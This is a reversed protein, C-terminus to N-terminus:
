KKEPAKERLAFWARMQYSCRCKSSGDPALVLGGAPIANIFCGPRMGGFNETGADRSLDLYGLTGSRFLMLNKGASIQGCGYSRELAFPKTSGDLLDWAGGQAYLTRNNILPRSEYEAERDWLRKGTRSDFAALRGGVETPLRFFKHRMGQYSMLLAHHQTSLALQTGWIHETSQWKVNGTQANLAVLTGTAHDGPKLKERHRGDRRPNDIRDVLSLKRDILYVTDAGIAIANHRISERPQYKWKLKGTDTDIAFFLVSENRLSLNSYRPSITHDANAVSGFLLGSDHALFGWVRHKKLAIKPTHYEALKKGTFLNIRLCREGQRVYVSDGGICFPSGTEGVGVDHHIGDYDKAFEKLEYRWLTRGNYADLACLGDVGATVQVGRHFLPAPGQGHRNPIEFNVDRFWHVGLPGKALEDNSCLTNAASANQHTWSGAGGLAGRTEVRMSGPKGLCTKGGFPRQLRGVEKKTAPSLDNRMSASSVILNAFQDPFPAKASAGTHVSVHVGLLNAAYLRRRVQKAQAPDPILCLVRLKTQRALEIALDGNDAGLDVCWGETIGTKAIIERAADQAISTTEIKEIAPRWVTSAPKPIDAFCYVVGRDTSVILRGDAAALGLARGEVPHSWWTTQQRTFDVASVRGDEGCYADIRAVIFAEIERQMSTQRTQVPGRIKVPTGKRDLKAIDKFQYSILQRGSARVIGDPMAVMPGHGVEASLEGSVSDFLCGSNGIFQDALLAASGGRKQNKQLHYFEFKGTARNFAAPVARGTPVIVQKENALLYGQASVGSKARAGGHPQNIEMSGTEGNVWVPKGTTAELAHVYVGDTPWIGSTFYVTDELVVPGGRAPWASIMRENGPLKRDNPGGRFKWLLRGDSQALAYLYGDDSAVFIRDQWAAPAFRVPGEAFFVWRTQGTKLDMATVTDETSSGIFVTGNAVIPQSAFDFCVRESTHWAPKPTHRARYTWALQLRNPLPEATYGSRAADARHQPWDAGPLQATLLVLGAFILRPKIMLVQYFHLTIRRRFRPLSFASKLNTSQM